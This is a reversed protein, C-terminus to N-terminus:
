KLYRETFEKSANIQISNWSIYIFVNEGGHLYYNKKKYGSFIFNLFM